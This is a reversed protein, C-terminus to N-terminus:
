LSVSLCVSLCVSLHLSLSLSTLFFSLFSPLLSERKEVMKELVATELEGDLDDSDEGSAQLRRQKEEDEASMAKMSKLMATASNRLTNMMKELPVVVLLDVSSQFSASFGVLVVIVLVILMIGFFANWQNIVTNNMWLKVHYKTLASTNDDTAWFTMEEYVRNDRRVYYGIDYVGRYTSFHPSEVVLKMPTLSETHYFRKMKAIMTDLEESTTGNNKAAFVFNTCWAKPSQDTVDFSLFPVVIVVIMVLAAVRRSLVASLEASVKRVASMTPEPEADEQSDFCPLFKFFRFFKTLRMLRGYRAGLKAARAARLLSGKSTAGGEPMFTDAIWGIDLIISLTGLTDMWFFFGLPYGDQCYCLITTEFCFIVFIIILIIYLVDDSSSHANALIWSDSIFLSMMLLLGLFIQVPASDMIDFVNRRFSRKSRSKIKGSPLPADAPPNAAEAGIPFVANSMSDREREPPLSSLVSTHRTLLSVSLCIERVPRSLIKFLCLSFIKSELWRGSVPQNAFTKRSHFDSFISRLSYSSMAQLCREMGVLYYEPDIEKEDETMAEVKEDCSVGVQDREGKSSQCEYRQQHTEASTEDIRDVRSDKSFWTKGSRRIDIAVDTLSVHSYSVAESV